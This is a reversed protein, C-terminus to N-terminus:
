LMSMSHAAGGAKSASYTNSPRMPSEETFEVGSPAPGHVEHTSVYIFHEVRLERAAQLTNRTGLVNSMVFPEPDQISREVHTEAGNQIVYRVGDLAKLVSAPYVARFDPFDM